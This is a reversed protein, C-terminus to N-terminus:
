CAPLTKRPLPTACCSISFHAAHFRRSKAISSPSPPLRMPIDRSRPRSALIEGPGSFGLTLRKGDSSNLTLKVRGELLFLVSRPEEEETFIIEGEECSFPEALAEFESMAELSLDKYFEGARWEADADNWATRSKLNM